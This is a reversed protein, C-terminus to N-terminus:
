ARAGACLYGQRGERQNEGGPAELAASRQAPADAVRAGAAGRFDLKHCMEFVNLFVDIVVDKEPHAFMLRKDGYLANFRKNGVYGLDTFFRKVRPGLRSYSVLDIDGYARQLARHEAAQCHLKVAIGGLLRLPIEQRAAAEVLTVAEQELSVAM